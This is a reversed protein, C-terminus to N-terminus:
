GPIGVGQTVGGCDVSRSEAITRLRSLECGWDRISLADCPRGDRRAVTPGLKREQGVWSRYGRACLPGGRHGRPHQQRKSRDAGLCRRGGAWTGEVPGPRLVCERYTTASEDSHGVAAAQVLPKYLM